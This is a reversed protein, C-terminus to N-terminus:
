NRVTSANRDIKRKVFYGVGYGICIGGAVFPAVFYEPSSFYGNVGEFTKYIGHYAGFGFFLAGIVAGFTPLAVKDGFKEKKSIDIDNRCQEKSNNVKQEITEEM